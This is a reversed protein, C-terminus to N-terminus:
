KVTRNLIEFKVVQRSLVVDVNNFIHLAEM